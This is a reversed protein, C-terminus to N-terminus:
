LGTNLECRCRKIAENWLGTSILIGDSLSNPLLLKRESLENEARYMDPRPIGARECARSIARRPLYVQGKETDICIAKRSLNPPCLKSLFPQLDLYEADLKSSLCLLALLEILSDGAKQCVRMQSTGIAAHTQDFQTLYRCMFRCMDRLLATLGNGGESQFERKQLDALYWVIDDFPPMEDTDRLAVDRLIIGDHQTCLSAATLRDTSIFANSYSEYPLKDLIDPPVRLYVPYNFRSMLYALEQKDKETSKDLTKFIMGASEAFARIGSRPLLGETVYVPCDHKGLLCSVYAAAAAFWSARVATVQEPYAVDRRAPLHVTLAPTNPLPVQKQRGMIEGKRISFCPFLIDGSDNLGLRDTIQVIEANPSFSKILNTFNSTWSKDFRPYGLGTRSLKDQLWKLPDKDITHFSEGAFLVRNNRYKIEGYWFVEGAGTDVAEHTLRVIADTVLNEGSPSTSYWGDTREVVNRGRMHISEPGKPVAEELLEKLADRQREPCEDIVQKVEAETLNVSSLTGRIELPNRRKDTLWCALFRAWPLAAASMKGLMAEPTTDNVYINIDRKATSLRPHDSIWGNERKAQKFLCWDIEDNWFVIREANVANWANRTDNNYVVMKLPTDQNTFNLRQFQLAFDLRSLAYVTKESGDLADLMALGGEPSDMKFPTLPAILDEESGIFTIGCIRGPVDQNAAALVLSFGRKPLARKGFNAVFMDDVTRREAGGLFQAMRKHPDTMWGQWLHKSQAYRILEPSPDEIMGRSLKNWVNSVRERFRPYADEYNQINVPTFKEASADCLGNKCATRIAEVLTSSRSIRQYTEITDGSFRCFSCRLWKARTSLPDRYVTLSPRKCLPCATIDPVAGKVSVGAVALIRDYSFYSSLDSVM